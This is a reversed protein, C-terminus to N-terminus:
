DARKTLAELHAATEKAEAIAEAPVPARVTVYQPGTRTWYRYVISLVAPKLAADYEVGVLRSGPLAWGHAVGNVLAGRESVAVVGDRYRLHAKAANRGLVYGLGGIAMIGLSIVAFIEADGKILAMIGPIVIAFFVIILLAGRHGAETEPEEVRAFADWDARSVRWRGIAVGQQLGTRISALRRFYFALIFATLGVFLSLFASAHAADGMRRLLADNFVIYVAIWCFAFAAILFAIRMAKAGDLLM